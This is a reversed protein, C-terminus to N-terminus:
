SNHTKLESNTELTTFQSTNEQLNKTSRGAKEAAHRKLHVLLVAIDAPTVGAIRSAQGVTVPRFRILKQRAETKLSPVTEYPFDEPIHRDELKRTRAVESEQKSIYGSYKASIETQEAAEEVTPDSM